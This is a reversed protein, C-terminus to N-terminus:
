HITIQSSNVAPRSVRSVRVIQDNDNDHDNDHDYDMLIGQRDHQVQNLVGAVPSLM